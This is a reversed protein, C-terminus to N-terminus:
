AAWDGLEALLMSLTHTPLHATMASDPRSHNTLM